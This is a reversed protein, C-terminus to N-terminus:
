GDGEPAPTDDGSPTETEGEADGEGAAEEDPAPEPASDKIRVLYISEETTTDGELAGWHLAYMGPPMSAAPRIRWLQQEPLDVPLTEIPLRVTAAWVPETLGEDIEEDPGSEVAVGPRLVRVQELRALQWDYNAMKHSIFYAPLAELALEAEQKIGHVPANDLGTYREPTARTLPDYTGGDFVYVGKAAPLPWLTVTPVDMSRAGGTEVSQQAVTFGSKIYDIEWAGPPVALRNGRNGFWGTGNTVAHVQAAEVKVSVGPLPEGDNNTM